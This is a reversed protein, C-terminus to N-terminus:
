NRIAKKLREFEATLTHTGAAGADAFVRLKEELLEYLKGAEKAKEIDAYKNGLERGAKTRDAMGTLIDQTDRTAMFGSIGMGQMTRMLLAPSNWRSKAFGHRRGRVDRRGATKYTELLAEFSVGGVENAKTRM